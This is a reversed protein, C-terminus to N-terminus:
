RTRSCRFASWKAPQCMFGGFSTRSITMTDGPVPMPRFASSEVQRWVAGETTTLALKGDGGQDVRALTVELRDEDRKKTVADPTKAPAAAHFEPRELGFSKRQQAPAAEAAPLLGASRLVEDFCAHRSDGDSIAACKRIATWGAEADSVQQSRAADPIWAMALLCCGAAVRSVGTINKMNEDGRAALTGLSVQRATETGSHM